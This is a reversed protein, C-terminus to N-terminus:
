KKYLVHRYIFSIIQFVLNMGHTDAIPPVQVLQIQSVSIQDIDLIVFSICMSLVAYRQVWDILTEKERYLTPYARFM